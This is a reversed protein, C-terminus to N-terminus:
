EGSGPLLVSIVELVHKYASIEGEYSGITKANFADDQLRNREKESREIRWQLWEALKVPDAAIQRNHENIWQQSSTSKMAQEKIVVEAIANDLGSEKGADGNIGAAIHLADELDLPATLIQGEYAVQYKM